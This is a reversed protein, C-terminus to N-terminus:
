DPKGTFPSRGSSIMTDLYDIRDQGWFVEDQYVYSPAGIVDLGIADQSNNHRTEAFEAQKSATM